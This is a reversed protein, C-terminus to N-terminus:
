GGSLRLATAGLLAGKSVSVSLDRYEIPIVNNESVQIMAMNSTQNLPKSSCAVVRVSPFHARFRLLNLIVPVNSDNTHNFELASRTAIIALRTTGCSAM